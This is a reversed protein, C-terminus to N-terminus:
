SKGTLKLQEAAFPPCELLSVGRSRLNSLLVVGQADIFEVDGLHLKLPRGKALVGECLQQLETVWPGVVRGELRLIVAHNVTKLHSIRLM